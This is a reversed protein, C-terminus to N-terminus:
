AVAATDLQASSSTLVCRFRCQTWYLSDDGFDLEWGGIAALQETRVLHDRHRRLAQERQERESVDRIVGATGRFHGNGFPLLAVHNECPIRDGEATLLDMEWKATQEDSALLGQIVTRGREVGAEDIIMSVHSGLLESRDHGVKEVLADNVFTLNGDTDLAYIPDGLAELTTEYRQLETERQKKATIDQFYVSLGTASPYIRLEFLTELSEYYFEVTVSQQSGLANRHAAELETGLAEPFVDWLREGLLEERDQELMRVATDNLYTFRWDTDLAYFADTIRSLHEDLQKQAQKYETIDTAIGVIRNTEGDARIPVARDHVWRIEGDPQVVRYEEEYSGERQEPIVAEIEDRDTPHIGDLFSTPDAYLSERSRGWIEEYASNVFLVKSKEPDSMWVVEEINEAMQRFREESEELEQLHIRREYHETVISVLTDLLTREEDLFPEDLEDHTYVVELTITQGDEATQEALLAHENAQFGTTEFVDGCCDLRAATRDPYQFSQPIMEVFESLLDEFPRRREFLDMARHIATLEKVREELERRYHDTEESDDQERYREVAATIRSSLQEKSVTSVYDTVGAAIAASALAESGDATALVIPCDPRETRVTEILEIADDEIGADTLLCCDIDHATLLDLVADASTATYTDSFSLEDAMRQAVASDADVCLVSLDAVSQPM